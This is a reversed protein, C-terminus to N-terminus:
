FKYRLGFMYRRGTQSAFRLMGKHRGHIRMTEDTLNMGEVFFSLQENMAWTVNMDLQGYSETYNPMRPEAFGGISSLFEDRWNYAARVQWGYKEYFLVLNASDSLGLMPYQEDLSTNDFELGSSVKTYNASVGFGSSGFMHQVSIELGDLTDSRQNIPTVVDFTALPDGPQGTITGTQQGSANQGTHNVGPQDALNLFIYDRICVMDTQGCGGDNIAQNWYAGGRPTNLGAFPSETVPTESIFNKINKRFYGASLYSGEGYYWEISLDFNKSELPLLAPNGRYGSGGSGIQVQNRVTLGGQIARWGARGISKGYSGRLILNERLDARIDLSPLWYNYKGSSTSAVPETGFDFFTDNRVLWVANGAPPLALAPSTIETQSTRL